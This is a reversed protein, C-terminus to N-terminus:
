GGRQRWPERPFLTNAGRSTSTALGSEMCAPFHESAHTLGGSVPRFSVPSCPGRGPCHWSAPWVALPLCTAPPDPIDTPRQTLARSLCGRQKNM